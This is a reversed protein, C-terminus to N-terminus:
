ALRGAQGAVDLPAYPPPATSPSQAQAGVALATLALAAWQRLASGITDTLETGM